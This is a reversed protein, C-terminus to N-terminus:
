LFKRKKGSIEDNNVTANNAAAIKKLNPYVRLKNKIWEESTL